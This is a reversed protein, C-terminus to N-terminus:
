RSYGIVSRNRTATAIIDIIWILDRELHMWAACADAAMKVM